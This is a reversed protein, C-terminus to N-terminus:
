NVTTKSPTPQDLHVDHLTSSEQQYENWLSKMDAANDIISLLAFYRSVEPRRIGPVQIKHHAGGVKAFFTVTFEDAIEHKPQPADNMRFMAHNDLTDWLALYTQQDLTGLQRVVNQGNGLNPDAISKLVSIKGNVCSIIVGYSEIGTFGGDARYSIQSEKILEEPSFLLTSSERYTSNILKQFPGAHSSVPFNLVMLLAPTVHFITKILKLRKTIKM